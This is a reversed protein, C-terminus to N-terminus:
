EIILLFDDIKNSEDLVKINLENFVEKFEKDNELEELTGPKITNCNVTINDDEYGNYSWYEMLIYPKCHTLLGKGGLLVEKKMWQADLWFFGIEGIIGEKWLNDLTTFKIGNESPTWQWGGTNRGWKNKEKASVSYIGEKDSIGVNIIKISNGLNNMKCLQNMFICKEYSPEICYIKIDTRNCNKLAIALSIGFDGLHAGIDLVGKGKALIYKLSFEKQMEQHAPNPWNNKSFENDIWIMPKKDIPNEVVICENYVKLKEM